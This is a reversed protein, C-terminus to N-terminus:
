GTVDITVSTRNGQGAVTAVVRDKSDDAARFTITQTGAGSVKGALVAACIKLAEELSYGDIDGASLVGSAIEQMTHVHTSLIIFEDGDSPPATIASDLTITKTSSVYDKIVQSQGILSGNTFHLTQGNYYDDVATAINTVFSTTTASVDDVQGDISVLGEKIQKVAKGFTGGGNHSSVSSDWVISEVSTLDVDAESRPLFTATTLTLDYVENAFGGTAGVFANLRYAGAPVDVFDVSYRNIDNTKETATQTDVVTDSGISFLKCTLTLGTAASFELTQTKM